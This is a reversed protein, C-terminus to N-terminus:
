VPKMRFTAFKGSLHIQSMRGVKVWHQTPADSWTELAHGWEDAEELLCCASAHQSCAAQTDEQGDPCRCKKGEFVGNRRAESWLAPDAEETHHADQGQLANTNHRSRKRIQGILQRSVVSEFDINLVLKVGCHPGWPVSRVIECEQILPGFLTSVQFYDIIDTKSRQRYPVHTHHGRSHGSIGGVNPDLLYREAHVLGAVLKAPFQFGSGLHISAKRREHSFVRRADFQRQYRQPFRRLARFLSYVVFDVRGMVRIVRGALRPNPAIGCTCISLPKSFWRTRVLALVGASAGNNATSIAASGTGAWSFIRAEKNLLM